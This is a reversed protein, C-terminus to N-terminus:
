TRLSSPCTSSAMVRSRGVDGHPTLPFSAHFSLYSHPRPRSICKKERPTISPEFDIFFDLELTITISVDHAAAPWPWWLAVTSYSLAM